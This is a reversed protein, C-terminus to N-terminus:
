ANNREQLTNMYAGVLNAQYTYYCPKITPIEPLDDSFLHQLIELERKLRDIFVQNQSIAGGIFIVEPAVTYFLNILGQALHRVMSNLAEECVLDGSQAWEIIAKGDLHHYRSDPHAQVRRVLSGTSALQSWNKIPYSMPTIMMYGYEGAYSRYGKVLQRNIMLAGGIGTGIVLCAFHTLTEDVALESLGVCNADNELFVPVKYESLLEYWSVGHIYPVASLGAIQGTEQDIAGPFSISIATIPQTKIVNAILDLLEELTSPTPSQQYHNLVKDDGIFASKVATGGIDFCAVTM